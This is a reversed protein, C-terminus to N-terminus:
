APQGVFDLIAESLEGPQDLPILTYSDAVEVLKAAPFSTALRRGEALPMIRDQTAWVVLVPKSFGAFKEAARNLVERDAFIGRIVRVADARIARDRLLPKIWSAVARDGRKTLWGFSLPLRRAPKLRLQQMFAGFLAPPLKATLALTKGSVGPPLNDFTDCAV